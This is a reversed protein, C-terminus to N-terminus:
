SSYIAKSLQVVCQVYTPSVGELAGINFSYMHIYIDKCLKRVDDFMNDYAVSDRLNRLSTEQM